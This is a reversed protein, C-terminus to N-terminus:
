IKTALERHAVVMVNTDKLSPMTKRTFIDNLFKRSKDTANNIIRGLGLEGAFETHQEIM